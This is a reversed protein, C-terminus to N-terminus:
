QGHCKKFKKGSGCLCPENRGIGTEKILKKYANLSKSLRESPDPWSVITGTKLMPDPGFTFIGTSTDLIFQLGVLGLNMFGVNKVARDFVLAHKQFEISHKRYWMEGSILVPSTRADVVLSIHRERQRLKLINYGFEFDWPRPDGTIWENDLISLLLNDNEDFLDLSVSLRGEPDSRLQFIPQCDVIFKFGSGVLYNTGVEVALFKDNIKLQGDTYDRTLNYPHKKKERQIAEDLAGVTAEHHHNPCLTMMDQVNHNPHGAFAVIHHYEVFPHGCMCCGFCAEQRLRRKMESPIHRTPEKM